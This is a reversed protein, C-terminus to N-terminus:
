DQIKSGSKMIWSRLALIRKQVSTYHLDVNLHNRRFQEIALPVDNVAASKPLRSIPVVFITQVGRESLSLLGKFVNNKGPSCFTLPIKAKKFEQDLSGPLGRSGILLYGTQNKM